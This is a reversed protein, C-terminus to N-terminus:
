IRKNTRTSKPPFDEHNEIHLTMDDTFLSLKVEKKEMPIGKLEEEKRIVTALVELVIKFLLTFSSMEVKNMIKLFISKTKAMFYSTPQTKKM